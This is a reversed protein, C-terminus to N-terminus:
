KHSVNKCVANRLNIDDELMEQEHALRRRRTIGKIYKYSDEDNLALLTALDLDLSSDFENKPIYNEQRKLKRKIWFTRIGYSWDARAYLKDWYWKLQSRFGIGKRKLVIADVILHILPSALVAILLSCSIIFYNSM